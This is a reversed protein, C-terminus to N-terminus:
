PTTFLQLLADLKNQLLKHKREKFIPFIILVTMNKKFLYNGQNKLLVVKERESPTLERRNTKAM